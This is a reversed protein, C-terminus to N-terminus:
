RSRSIKCFDRAPPFEVMLVSGDTYFPFGDSDKGRRPVNPSAVLSLRLRAGSLALGRALFAREADINPDVRHTAKTWDISVDLNGGGSWIERGLADRRGMDWLRFHHRKYFMRVVMVWNFVEPRGRVYFTKFPPFDIRPIQRNMLQDLSESFSAYISVPAESWGAATLAGRIQAASGLFVLNLPVSPRGDRSKARGPLSSALGLKQASSLGRFSKKGFARLPRERIRGELTSFARPLGSGGQARVAVPLVCLAAATWASRM